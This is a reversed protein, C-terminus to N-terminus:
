YGDDECFHLKLTTRLGISYFPSVDWPSPSAYKLTGTDLTESEADPYLRHSGDRVKFWSGADTNLLGQNWWFLPQVGESDTSFCPGRASIPWRRTRFISNPGSRAINHSTM